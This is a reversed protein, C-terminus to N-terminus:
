DNLFKLLYKLDPFKSLYRKFLPKCYSMNYCQRLKGKKIEEINCNIISENVGKNSYIPQNYFEVIDDNPYYQGHILINEIDSISIDISEIYKSCEEMVDMLVKATKKRKKNEPKFIPKGNKYTEILDEHSGIAVEVLLPFHIVPRTLFMKTKLEAIPNSSTYQMYFGQTKIGLAFDITAQITGAYGIDVIIDDDKMNFQKLYELAERRRKEEKTENFEDYVIEIHQKLNANLSTLTLSALSRRSTYLYYVDEAGWRKALKYPMYMDRSLFFIKQGEERNRLVWKTFETILPTYFMALHELHNEKIAAEALYKQLRTNDVMPINPNVEHLATHYVPEINARCAGEIDAVYNDGYHKELKCGLEKEVKTFLEGTAKCAKMECSVFVRPNKYGISELMQALIASPLYMDSIFVYKDPNYIKLIDKNAYCLEKEVEIEEHVDFEPLFKYVEMIGYYPDEERAKNEAELRKNYFDKGVREEVIKYVDVPKYVRRFLATDFIDLSIM